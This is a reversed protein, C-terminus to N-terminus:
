LSLEKYCEMRSLVCLVWRAIIHYGLSFLGSGLVGSTSWSQKWPASQFFYEQLISRGSNCYEIYIFFEFEHSQSYNSVIGKEAGDTILKMTM